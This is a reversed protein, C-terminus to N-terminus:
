GKFNPMIYSFIIYYLVGQLIKQKIIYKIGRYVILIYTPRPSHIIFSRLDQNAQNEILRM